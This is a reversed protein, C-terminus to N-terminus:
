DGIMELIIRQTLRLSFFLLIGSFHYPKVRNEGSAILSQKEDLSLQNPNTVKRPSREKRWPNEKLVARIFVGKRVARRCLVIGAGGILRDHTSRRLNGEGLAIKEDVKENL